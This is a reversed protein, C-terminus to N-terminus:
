WGKPPVFHATMSDCEACHYRRPDGHVQCYETGKSVPTACRRGSYHMHDCKKFRNPFAKVGPM